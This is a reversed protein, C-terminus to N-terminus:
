VSDLAINGAFDAVPMPRGLAYGQAYDVGLSRLVDLCAENEVYEAVTQIGMAHALRNIAEVMALDTNDTAINRVLSGDIKLYDVPLTKLYAFSSLGSGFDDLAFHGGLERVSGILNAAELRNRIAATETIEFCINEPSVGHEAFEHELFSFLREDSLTNGSLNISIQVTEQGPFLTRFRRFATTIVWRDIAAMIGYREAAPIFSSPPVLKGSEDLLRLLLEFRSICPTPRELSYIPQYYLRFRDNEIASRMDAARLIERHRPDAGDAGSQYLHVRNRGLEKAAYCAVDAHSMLEDASQVQDTVQVMGISAGVDFPRDNWAFELARISAVLSEAIDRAKGIPCNELLIAFEDGGLRAVTDRERVHRPLLLAIQRLLEDGVPHGAVDNVIKFQDLDVYCLAHQFGFEKSSALAKELRRDFERRNVLGTLVDHAAQHQAERALRRSETVDHFVLVAGILEGSHNRIPAASDQIAFERGTRSLLVTLSALGVVRDQDMCQHIPDVVAERTEENVIKFVDVLARGRAEETRWETLAEAVPNMYEIRGSADTTIVADGISHLTVEAREKAEHLAQEVSKRYGIEDSLAVNVRALESVRQGDVVGRGTLILLFAGLLSTFSLGGALTGWPAFSRNEVLYDPTAACVLRWSRGGFELRLTSTLDTNPRATDEGPALLRGDGQAGRTRYAALLRAAGPISDDFLRVNLNSMGLGNLAAALVDGMRFVGVAFGAVLERREEVGEPEAGGEYVPVVALIGAQDGTEQVLRVPATAAFHGTDRAWDLVARRDRISYVDFGHAVRNEEFPEVNRVFVYTPRDAARVPEGAANTERIEFSRFGEARLAAEVEAREDHSIVSNWSLAQIGPVRELSRSVFRRFFDQSVVNSNVILSRISHVVEAYTALNKELSNGILAARREFDIRIRQQEQSSGVFFLGIVLGSAVLMPVALGFLRPRWVERARGLLVMGLPAVVTVGITDGVWWTVWSFVFDAPPIKGFMLLTVVGWTASVLCCIPGGLALFAIVDRARILDVEPGVLRRILYAGLVAQAAAGLGINAAILISELISLADGGGISTGVNVLFSGVVIGPWLRYGHLVLAVLAIGSAPWVATAYGPPIALLLALRGASFYLFAVIAIGWLDRGLNRYKM